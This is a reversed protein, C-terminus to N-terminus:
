ATSRRSRRTPREDHDPVGVPRAAPRRWRRRRGAGAADRGRAPVVAVQDAGLRTRRSSTAARSRSPPQRTPRARVLRGPRRPRAGQGAGAAPAPCAAAVVDRDGAAPPPRRGARRHQHSPRIPRPVPRDATGASVARPRTRRHRTARRPRRVPASWCSCAASTAATGVGRRGTMGGGYPSRRRDPRRQRAPARLPSLRPGHRQDRQGGLLM